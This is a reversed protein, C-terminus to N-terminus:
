YDDFNPDPTSSSDYICRCCDRTGDEETVCLQDKYITNITTICKYQDMGSNYTGECDLQACCETIDEPVCGAVYSGGLALGTAAVAITAYRKAGGLKNKLVEGMRKLLSGGVKQELNVQVNGAM